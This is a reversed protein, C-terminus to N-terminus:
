LKQRLPEIMNNLEESFKSDDSWDHDMLEGCQRVVRKIRELEESEISGRKEISRLYKIESFLPEDRTVKVRELAEHMARLRDESPLIGDFAYLDISGWKSNEFFDDLSKEARKPIAIVSKGLRLHPIPTLVGPYLNEYTKERGKKDERTTKSRFGFLKRYFKTRNSGGFKLDFSYIRALIKGDIKM